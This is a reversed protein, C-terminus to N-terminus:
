RHRRECAGPSGSGSSGGETLGQSWTVKLHSGSGSAPGLYSSIGDLAGFSIKKPDGEPHHIGAVGLGPSVSGTRWGAFFAGGPAPENLRLLTFDTSSSTALLTAGRTLRTSAALSTGGCSTRQEFWFTNLTAAVAHSDICHNASLFYPTLTGNRDNLLTGTCLFTLGGETFSMRAVARAQADWAPHCAVDIECPSSVELFAQEQQAPNMLLHSVSTANLSLSRVDSSAPVFIEVAITDGPVIPSWFRRGAEPASATPEALVDAATFPGFADAGSEFGFFRLEAGAPLDRVDLALRLAAAGPSRVSLATVAGDGMAAWVLNQPELTRALDAPIDRNFGIQLPENDRRPRLDAPPAVPLVLSNAISGPPYRRKLAAGPLLAQPTADASRGLIGSPPAQADGATQVALLLTALVLGRSLSRVAATRASLLSHRRHRSLLRSFGPLRM